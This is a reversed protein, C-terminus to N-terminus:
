LDTIDHTTIKLQKLTSLHQDKVKGDPSFVSRAVQEAYLSDQAPQSGTTTTQRPASM